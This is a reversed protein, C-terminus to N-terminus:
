TTEDSAEKRLRRLEAWSPRDPGIDKALRWEVNPGAPKDKTVLEARRLTKLFFRVNERGAGSTAALDRAKFTRMVRIARWMRDWDTDTNKYGGGKRKRDKLSPLARYIINDIGQRGKKWTPRELQVQYRVVHGERVLRQLGRYATKKDLETHATINNLSFFQGSRRQCFEIVKNLPTSM